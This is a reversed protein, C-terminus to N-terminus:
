LIRCEFWAVHPIRVTRTKDQQLHLAFRLEREGQLLSRAIAFEATERMIGRAAVAIPSEERALHVDISGPGLKVRLGPPNTFEIEIPQATVQDLVIRFYVEGENFGVRIDQLRLTGSRSMAGESELELAIANDWAEDVLQGILSPSIQGSGSRKTSYGALKQAQEKIPLLLSDPVREDLLAYIARLHSRFLDDFADKQLTAHDDGYWWYWDSGEAISLEESARALQEIHRTYEGSERDAAIVQGLKAHYADILRKAHELADWAANEEPKGIWIRFNGDIWSGSPIHEIRRIGADRTAAIAESMTSPLLEPMDVLHHYLMSLFDFGNHSYGEWCNEGDLIISVAAGRLGEEGHAELISNRIRQLRFLFDGVADETRWVRYDFGISDSLGHDRFFFTVDGHPSQYNWPFYKSLEPHDTGRSQLALARELIVEDTATWSFGAKAILGAAEPSVSGESPWCGAPIFGFEKTAYERGRVLQEFARDPHAYRSRPLPVGPMSEKASNTDCLLPLIPHYYPSTTLELQGNKQLERHLPMITAVAAHLQALLATKEEETYGREKRVLTAAPEANRLFEGSWALAYHVALDRFDQTDFLQVAREDIRPAQKTRDYHESFRVSRRIMNAEHALFFHDLMFIKEDVTLTESPKRMCDLVPDDVRGSIYDELQKLLSPVLNITAKMGPVQQIHQAMELYDKTAHLWVWPLISKSGLRYNPQHQHWLFCVRLPVPAQDVESM